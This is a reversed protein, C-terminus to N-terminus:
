IHDTWTPRIAHVLLRRFLKLDDSFRRNYRSTEGYAYRALYDAVEHDEKWRNPNRDELSLGSEYLIRHFWNHVLVREAIAEKGAKYALCVANELGRAKELRQWMRQMNSRTSPEEIYQLLELYQQSESAPIFLGTAM